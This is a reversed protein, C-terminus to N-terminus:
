KSLVAPYIFKTLVLYSNMDLNRMRYNGATFVIVLKNKKDIFVRQGGNGSCTIMKLPRNMITDAWLWIQFGYQTGSADNLNIQPTTSAKVWGASVIQKSNWKGDNMYLLGFKMLDKSRLYLGDFADPLNANSCSTWKFRTIDLPAFLYKKAFADVPMGTAKKVIAALVQTAGGNYTFVTGPKFDMPLSLVYAVPDASSDMLHESNGTQDYDDENWRFGATMTLLDKITIQTKLGTDLFAYEPLFDFIKEEISEIKGQQLAIGVCASVFSKTVSQLAHLSDAGHKIVALKYGEIRDKGTWYKEYIIKNQHAIIISHINPYTGNEIANEMSHIISMDLIQSQGCLLQLFLLCLLLLKKM